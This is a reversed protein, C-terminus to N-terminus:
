SGTSTGVKFSFRDSIAMESSSSPSSTTIKASVTAGSVTASCNMMMGSAASVEPGPINFNFDILLRRTGPTWGRPEPLGHWTLGVLGRSVGITLGVFSAAATAEAVSTTPPDIPEGPVRLFLLSLKISFIALRLSERSLSPSVEAMAPDASESDAGLFVVSLKISFSALRLFEPSVGTTAPDASESDAGLFVVSLKM